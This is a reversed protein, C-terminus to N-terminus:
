MLWLSLFGAALGILVKIAKVIIFARPSEALLPLGAHGDQVVSSVLLVPFPVIGAAFMTVFIMHPGSQPALGILAGILMMWEVNNTIWEKVDLYNFLFHLVLLTGFIWFFMRFFHKKFIHNWVHEELFHENVALTIFVAMFSLIGLLLKIYGELQLGEFSNHEAHEHDPGFILWLGLLILMFLIFLREFNMSRLNVKCCKVYGQAHFTDVEHIEMHRSPINVLTPFFRDILFGFLLALLFLVGFLILTKEPFLGMMFYSEDGTTAIFNALLSGFTVTGHTYLTVWFYSGACGPLLGFLAGLLVQLGKNTSFKQLWKGSSLVNLYEVLLMLLLVILTITLSNLMLHFFTHMIKKLILLVFFVAQCFLM